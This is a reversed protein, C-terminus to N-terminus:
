HYQLSGRDFYIINGFYVIRVSIFGNLRKRFNQHIKEYFVFVVCERLKEATYWFSYTWALAIMVIIM